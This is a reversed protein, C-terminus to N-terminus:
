RMDNFCVASFIMIYDDVKLGQVFWFRTWVRLLVITVTVATFAINVGYIEPVQSPVDKGGVPSVM